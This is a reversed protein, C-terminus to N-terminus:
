SAPDAVARWAGEDGAAASRAQAGGTRASGRARRRRADRRLARRHPPATRRAGARSVGERRKSADLLPPLGERHWDALPRGTAELVELARAIRTRDGPRLQAQRTAGCCTRCAAGGARGGGDARAGSARIEAPIPPVSSLGQTLAKFYLGTGGVLIPVRGAARVEDLVPRVDRLGAGSRITRRRMWMAMSGTRCGRRRRPRRGRRSSACTAISRCRTPTSSRAASRARGAGAGAGVQRERDARRYAGGKRRDRRHSVDGSEDGIRRPGREVVAAVRADRTATSGAACAGRQSSGPM